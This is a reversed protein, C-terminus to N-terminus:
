FDCYVECELICISDDVKCRNICLDCPSIPHHNNDPAQDKLDLYFGTENFTRKDLQHLNTTDQTYPTLVIGDYHEMPRIHLTFSQNNEISLNDIAVLSSITTDQDTFFVVADIPLSTNRINEPQIQSVDGLQTSTMNPDPYQVTIVMTDETGNIITVAGGQFYALNNFSEAASSVGAFIFLAILIALGIGQNQNMSYDDKPIHQYYIITCQSHSLRTIADSPILLPILLSFPDFDKWYNHSPQYSSDTNVFEPIRSRSEM